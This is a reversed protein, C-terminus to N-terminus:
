ATSARAPRLREQSTPTTARRGRDVDLHDGWCAIELGDYGWEPPWGACRRSRCTPGSAPSCPSRDHCRCSRTPRRPGPPDTPRSRPGPPEDRPAASSPPSCGSCRCATPSRRRRTPAARRHRAVLDVVQHTFGHEYGLGHGPPWWAGVYPHEPETVLIRRFGPRRAGARRRRLVAAREHGRLRVGPQGRSGNIELRIANKRGPPSGPPRSRRRARRRDFRGLFLAADDVTVAGTGPRRGDGGLGAPREGAAPAGQRLDRAARQGRHAAAGTIYQALDVIHAGIDGLAGSGAKDKQLRWVAPVAPDVIWDQLYQARVHRITASGARPSSSAPWRSRRCGATPSASWRRPRGHAAAATPPRPWRRPRPSPTPWRSRACCTSAPRSRPSRSRPTPTARAHLHRRPRHRRARDARRWDTETTPGASGTPRPRPPRRRRPRVLSPWARPAAAPRLLPPATRWAQSHAAGMFAYGVMGVGLDAPRAHRTSRDHPRRTVPRREAAGAPRDPSSPPPLYQDVNDKTVVPAHLMIPRPVEVEVLDSMGKGQVLLRALKIGDAAMPRRTSSRRRSCATTPRSADMANASGAGGVM